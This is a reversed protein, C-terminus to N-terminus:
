DLYQKTSPHSTLLDVIDLKESRDAIDYLEGVIDADLVTGEFSLLYELIDYRDEQVALLLYSHSQRHMQAEPQRSLFIVGELNGSTIFWGMMQYYDQDDLELGMEPDVLMELVRASLVPSQVPNGRADTLYLRGTLAMKALDKFDFEPMTAIFKIREEDGSELAWATIYGESAIESVTDKDMLAYAVSIDFVEESLLLGPLGGSEVMLYKEQWTTKGPQQAPSFSMGLSAELKQKWFIDRSMLSQVSRSLVSNTEALQQLEYSSAHLAANYLIVEYEDM